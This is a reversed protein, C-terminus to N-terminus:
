LETVKMILQGKREVLPRKADEVAYPTQNGAPMWIFHKESPEFKFRTLLRILLVKLELTAFKFGICSSPGAMFTMMHSYVGPSGEASAARGDLWREPDFRDADSGWIDKDRNINYIGVSVATGKPVIISTQPGTSTNVPYKLPIAVDQLSVREIVNVPPHLRLTERCVADLYPLADIEDRDIEEVGSRAMFALLEERLRGQIEPHATLVDLVRTVAGSLWTKLRKRSFYISVKDGPRRMGPLFSLLSNIYKMHGIMEESSMKADEPLKEDAKMLLTLIDKGSGTAADLSQGSALLHHRSSLIEQAQDHQVRVLERLDKAAWMSGLGGGLVAIAALNNNRGYHALDKVTVSHIAVPDSTYVAMKQSDIETMPRVTRGHSNMFAEQLEENKEDANFGAGALWSPNPPGDLDLPARSLYKATLCILLAGAAVYASTAGFHLDRYSEM